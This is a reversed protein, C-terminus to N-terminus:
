GQEEGQTTDSRLFCGGAATAGGYSKTVTLVLDLCSRRFNSSLSSHTAPSTPRSSRQTDLAALKGNEPCALSTGLFPRAAANM